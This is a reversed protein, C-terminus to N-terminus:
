KNAKSKPIHAHNKVNEVNPWLKQWNYGPIFYTFGLIYLVACGSSKFSHPHIIPLTEYRLMYKRKEEAGFIVLLFKSHKKGKTEWKIFTEWKPYPTNYIGLKINFERTSGNILESLWDNIVM